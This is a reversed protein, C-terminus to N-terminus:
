LSEYYMAMSEKTVIEDVGKIRADKWPKELHTLRSLWQADKDGYDRLVINITEKQNDSLKEFDGKPEDNESVRFKGRTEEFLERCVPGNEWARFDEDFLSQDDWVLSWAQAYYCLKQLKMTSMDGLTHLIYKAVDFVNTKSSTTTEKVSPVTIVSSNDM